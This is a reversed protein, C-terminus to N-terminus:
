HEHDAFRRLQMTGPFNILREKKARKNLAAKLTIKKEDAAAWLTTRM